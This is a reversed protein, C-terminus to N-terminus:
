NYKTHDDLNQSMYRLARILLFRIMIFLFVAGCTITLALVVDDGWICGTLSLEDQCIKQNFKEFAM